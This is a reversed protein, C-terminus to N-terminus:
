VVGEITSSGRRTGLTVIYYPEETLEFTNQYDTFVGRYLFASVVEVVPNGDRYVHSEVKIVKGPATNVVSVIKAESMCADGAQFSRAGKVM